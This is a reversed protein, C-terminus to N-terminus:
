STNRAASSRRVQFGRPLAAHLRSDTRVPIMRDEDTAFTGLLKTASKPRIAVLPEVLRQTTVQRELLPALCRRADDLDAAQADTGLTGYRYDIARPTAVPQEHAGTGVQIRQRRREGDTGALFIINLLIM